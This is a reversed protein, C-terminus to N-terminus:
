LCPPIVQAPQNVVRVSTHLVTAINVYVLEQLVIYADAHSLIVFWGVISNRFTHVAGYLCLDDVLLFTELANSLCSEANSLKDVEIVVVSRM